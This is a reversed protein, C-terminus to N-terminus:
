VHLLSCFRLGLAILHVYNLRHSLELLLYAGEFLPRKFVLENLEQELLSTQLLKVLGLMLRALSFGSVPSLSGYNEYCWECCGCDSGKAEFSLCSASIMPSPSSIVMMLRAKRRDIISPHFGIM